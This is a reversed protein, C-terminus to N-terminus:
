VALYSIGFPNLDQFNQLILRSYLQLFKPKV